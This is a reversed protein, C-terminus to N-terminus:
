TEVNVFVYDVKMVLLGRGVVAGAYVANIAQIYGEM